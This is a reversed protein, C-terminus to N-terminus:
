EQLPVQVTSPKVMDEEVEISRRLIGVMRQGHSRSITQTHSHEHGVLFKPRLMVVLSQRGPFVYFVGDGRLDLRALPQVTLVTETQTPRSSHAPVPM